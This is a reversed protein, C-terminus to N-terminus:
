KPSDDFVEMREYQVTHNLNSPFEFNQLHAEVLPHHQGTYTHHIATYLLWFVMERCRAHFKSFQTFEYAGISLEEIDHVVDDFKIIDHYTKIYYDINNSLMM